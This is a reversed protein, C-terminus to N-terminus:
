REVYQRKLERMTPNNGHRRMLAINEDVSLSSDWIATWDEIGYYQAAAKICQAKIINIDDDPGGWNFRRKEERTLRAQGIPIRQGCHPCSETVIERM